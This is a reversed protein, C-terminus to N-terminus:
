YLWQSLGLHQTSRHGYGSPCVETPITQSFLISRHPQWTVRTCLFSINMLVQLRLFTIWLLTLTSREVYTVCVYWRGVILKMFPSPNFAVVCVRIICGMWLAVFLLVVTLITQNKGHCASTRHLLSVEQCSKPLFWSTSVHHDTVNRNQSPNSPM